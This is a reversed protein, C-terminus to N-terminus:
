RSRRQSRPSLIRDGRRRPWRLFSLARSEHFRRSKRALRSVYDGGGSVHLAIRMISEVVRVQIPYFRRLSRSSGIRICQRQPVLPNLVWKGEKSICHFTFGIIKGIVM